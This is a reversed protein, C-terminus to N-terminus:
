VIESCRTKNNIKREFKLMTHKKMKMKIAFLRKCETAESNILGVNKLSGSFYM